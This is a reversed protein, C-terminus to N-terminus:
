NADGFCYCQTVKAIKIFFTYFKKLWKQYVLQRKPFCGLLISFM